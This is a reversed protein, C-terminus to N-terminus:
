QTARAAKSKEYEAAWDDASQTTKGRSGEWDTAAKLYHAESGYFREPKLVFGPNKEIFAAYTKTGDMVVDLGHLHIAQIVAACQSQPLQVIGNRSNKWHWNAPHLRLISEILEDSNKPPKLDQIELHPSDSDYNYNVNPTEDPTVDANCAQKKGRSRRVRENSKERSDQERVMKRSYVCGDDTRSFVGSDELEQLWRSTDDTPNGTMRALAEATVIKGNNLKLYGRRASEFMLCLMDAWLGRAASSVSRLEPDKMWAGTDLKLYWDKGLV